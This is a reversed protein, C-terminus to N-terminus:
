RSKGQDWKSEREKEREGERRGRKGGEQNGRDSKMKRDIYRAM